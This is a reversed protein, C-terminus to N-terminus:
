GVLDPREGDLGLLWLDPRRKQRLISPLCTREFTAIRHRLWRDYGSEEGLDRRDRFIRLNFRTLLLHGIRHESPSPAPHVADNLLVLLV